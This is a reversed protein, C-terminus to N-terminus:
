RLTVTLTYNVYSLGGGSQASQLHLTYPPGAFLSLLLQSAQGCPLDQWNGLQSAGQLLELHLKSNGTCTVTVSVTAAQGSTGGVRFQVWDEPDGQPTSLDSSYEFARLEVPSLTLSAAPNAASDNDPPAPLVTPAPGAPKPAPTGTGVVQGSESIIPLSEVGQPQLFVASIWGIGGPGTPFAIQLWTGLADKGTLAVQEGAQVTGIPNFDTGPGDRVNVTEIVTASADQEAQPAASESGGIVPVDPVGSVQVYQSTIWGVGNPSEPFLIMWWSESTDKGVIQVKEFINVTGLNESAAAPASRVNLQATTQGEVPEVPPTATPPAVTPSPRPTFTPPLTATIFAPTDTPTPPPPEAPACAYVLPALAAFSLLLLFRQTTVRKNYV